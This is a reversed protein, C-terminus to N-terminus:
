KKLATFEDGDIVVTTDTMSFDVTQTEENMTMTIKDGEISYTGEIEMGGSSLTMKDGEFIVSLGLDASYYEGSPKKDKGCGALVSLLMILATVLCLLKKM